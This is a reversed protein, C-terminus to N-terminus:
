KLSKAFELGERNYYENEFKAVKPKGEDIIVEQIQIEGNVMQQKMAANMQDLYYQLLYKDYNKNFWEQVKSCDIHNFDTLGMTVLHLIEDQTMLLVQNNQNLISLAEEVSEVSEVPVQADPPQVLRAEWNQFIVKM